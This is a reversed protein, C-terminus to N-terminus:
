NFLEYFALQTKIIHVRNINMVSARMSGRYYVNELINDDLKQLAKWSYHKKILDKYIQANRLSDEADFCYECRSYKNLVVNFTSDLVENIQLYDEYSKINIGTQNLYSEPITDTKIELLSKNTESKSSCSSLFLTILITFFIRIYLM